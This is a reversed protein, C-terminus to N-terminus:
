DDDDVVDEEDEEKDDDDDDDDAVDDNDVRQIRIESQGTRQRCCLTWKFLSKSTLTNALPHFSSKALRYAHHTTLTDCSLLRPRFAHQKFKPNRGSFLPTRLRVRVHAWARDSCVNGCPVPHLGGQCRLAM